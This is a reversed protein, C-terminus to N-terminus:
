FAAFLFCTNAVDPLCGGSPQVHGRTHRHESVGVRPNFMGELPDISVTVDKFMGGLLHIDGRPCRQEGKHALCKGRMGLLFRDRDKRTSLSSNSTVLEEQGILASEILPTTSPLLEHHSYRAGACTSISPAGIPHDRKSVESPDFARNSSPSDSGAAIGLSDFSSSLSESPQHVAAEGLHLSSLGHSTAGSLAPSPANEGDDTLDTSAKRWDDHCGLNYQSVDVNTQLLRTATGADNGLPTQSAFPATVASMSQPDTGPGQHTASPISM